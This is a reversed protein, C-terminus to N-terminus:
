WPKGKKNNLEDLEKRLREKLRKLVPPLEYLCGRKYYDILDIIERAEIESVCIPREKNM